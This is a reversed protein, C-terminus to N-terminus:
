REKAERARGLRNTLVLALRNTTQTGKHVPVRRTVANAPTRVPPVDVSSRPNLPEVTQRDKVHITTLDM